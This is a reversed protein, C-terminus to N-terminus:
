PCRVQINKSMVFAFAPSTTSHAMLPAPKRFMWPIHRMSPMTISEMSFFLPKAIRMRQRAVIHQICSTALGGRGQQTHIRCISCKGGTRLVSSSNKQLCVGNAQRGRAAISCHRRSTLSSEYVPLFFPASGDWLPIIKLASACLRLAVDAVRRLNDQFTAVAFARQM